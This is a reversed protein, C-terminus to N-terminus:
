LSRQLGLMVLSATSLQMAGGLSYDNFLYRIGEHELISLLQFPSAEVKRIVETTFKPSQLQLSPSLEASRAITSFARVPAKDTRVFNSFLLRRGSMRAEKSMQHLASVL